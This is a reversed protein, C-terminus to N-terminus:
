LDDMCDDFSWLMLNAMFVEKFHVAQGRYAVRRLADTATRSVIVNFRQTPSADM